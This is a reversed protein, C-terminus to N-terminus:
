LISGIYFHVISGKTSSCLSAWSTSCSRVTLSFTALGPDSGLESSEMCTRKDAASGEAEWLCTMQLHRSCAAKSFGPIIKLKACPMQQSFSEPNLAKDIVTKSLLAQFQPIPFWRTIRPFLVPHSFSLQVSSSVRMQHEPTLARRPLGHHLAPQIRQHGERM